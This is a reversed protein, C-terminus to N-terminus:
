RLYGPRTALPVTPFERQMARTIATQVFTSDPSRTLIGTQIVKNVIEGSPSFTMVLATVTQGEAPNVIITDQELLNPSTYSTLNTPEPGHRRHYCYRNAEARSRFFITHIQVEPERISQTAANSELLGQRDGNEFWIINFPARGETNHLMQTASGANYLSQYQGLRATDAPPPPPPTSPPATQFWPLTSELEPEPEPESKGASGASNDARDARFAEALASEIIVEARVRNGAGATLNGAVSSHSQYVGDENFQMTLVARSQPTFHQNLAGRSLYQYRTTYGASNSTQLFDDLEEASEFFL